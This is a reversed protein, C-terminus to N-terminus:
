APVLSTCRLTIASRMRPRGRSGRPSDFPAQHVESESGLLVAERLRQALQHGLGVRDSGRTRPSGAIGLWPQRQPPAQGLLPDVRQHDGLLLTTQTASRHIQDDGELHEAVM